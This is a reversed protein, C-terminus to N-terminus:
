GKPARAQINHVVGGTEHVQATVFHPGTKSVLGWFFSTDGKGPSGGGCVPSAFKFTIKNGVKNASAIGITGLGGSTVVFVQDGKNGDGNYDLSSVVSGFDFSIWDVCSIATLGVANRLDLRYEYAFLGAAPSGAKGTYTRSQFFGTGGTSLTVNDSTDNVVVTCGPNFVCNIAPAGVKVIKLPIAQATSIVLLVFVVTTLIRM